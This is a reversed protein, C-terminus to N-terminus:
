SCKGNDSTEEDSELDVVPIDNNPFKEYAFLPKQLRLM